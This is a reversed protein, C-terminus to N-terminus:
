KILKFTEELPRRRKERVPYGEVAYGLAIVLPFSTGEPLNLFQAIGKEDRLGIICTQLGKNEAALTIYASLIGIDEPIYEENSIRREGRIIVKPPRAEIVIYAHCCDAWANAGEKQINKTFAKAIEGNIAYLNYPQQNVASPALTALRCIEKLDEDAVERESFERTSQRKLFLEELNM